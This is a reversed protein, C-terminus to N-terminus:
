AEVPEPTEYRALRRRRWIWESESLCQIARQRLGTELKRATMLDSVRRLAQSMRSPDGHCLAGSVWLNNVTTRQTVLAALNSMLVWAHVRSGTRASVEGLTRLFREREVDDRFISERRDGRHYLAGEFRVRARRAM